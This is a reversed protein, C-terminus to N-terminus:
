PENSLINKSESDFSGPAGDVIVAPSASGMLTKKDIVKMLDNRLKEIKKEMKM